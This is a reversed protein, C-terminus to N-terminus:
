VREDSTPPLRCPHYALTPRREDARRRKTWARLKNEIQGLVHISIVLDVSLLHLALTRGLCTSQGEVSWRSNQLTKGLVDTCM